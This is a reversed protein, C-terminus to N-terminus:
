FFLLIGLGASGLLSGWGILWGQRMLPDSARDRLLWALIMPLLVLVLGMAQCFRGWAMLGVTTLPLTVQIM